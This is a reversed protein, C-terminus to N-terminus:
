DTSGHCFSPMEIETQKQKVCTQVVDLSRTEDNPHSLSCGPCPNFWAKFHDCCRTCEMSLSLKKVTITSEIQGMEEFHHGKKGCPHPVATWPVADLAQHWTEEEQRITSGNCIQLDPSEFLVLLVDFLVMKFLKLPLISWCLQYFNINNTDKRKKDIIANMSVFSSSTGGFNRVRQSHENYRSSCPKLFLSFFVNRQCIYIIYIYTMDRGSALADQVLTSLFVFHIIHRESKKIVDDM